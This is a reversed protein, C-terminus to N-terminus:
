RTPEPGCLASLVTLDVISEATAEGGVEVLIGDPGSTVPGLIAAGGILSLIRSSGGGGESHTLVILVPGDGGSERTERIVLSKERAGLTRAAERVRADLLGRVSLHRSGSDLSVPIGPAIFVVEPRGGAVREVLGISALAIGALEAPGPLTVGCPEAVVRVSGGDSREPVLFYRVSRPRTPRPLRRDELLPGCVIADADGALVMAQALHFRSALGSDAEHGAIGTSAWQARWLDQYGRHEGPSRLNVGARSLMEVSMGAGLTASDGLLTVRALGERGLRVAALVVRDAEPQTFVIRRPSAAARGHLRAIPPPIPASASM